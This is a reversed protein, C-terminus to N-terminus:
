ILKGPASDALWTPINSPTYYWLDFCEPKGAIGMYCRGMKTEVDVYFTYDTLDITKGVDRMFTFIETPITIFANWKKGEKWINVKNSLGAIVVLEGPEKAGVITWPKDFVPKM